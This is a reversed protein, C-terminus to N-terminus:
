RTTMVNMLSAAAAAATAVTRSLQMEVRRLLCTENCKSEKVTTDTNYMVDNQM